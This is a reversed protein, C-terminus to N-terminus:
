GRRGCRARVGAPSSLSRAVRPIGVCGRRWGTRFPPMSTRSLRAHFALRRALGAADAPDPETGSHVYDRLVDPHWRAFMKKAAFHTHVAEIAPWRDRRKEAVAAPSVRRMQGTAKLVSVVGAKWGSVLPSDLLVIGRIRQPRKGAAMLSLYGGMSHGVLWVRPAAQGDILDVLQRAMGLWNRGVPYRADHGYREVALVEHGAARWGEFLHRYTGAPYSNAHSFVIPERSSTDPGDLMM